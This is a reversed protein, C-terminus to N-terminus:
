VTYKKGGAVRGNNAAVKFEDRMILEDQLPSQRLLVVAPLLVAEGSSRRHDPSARPNADTSLVDSM